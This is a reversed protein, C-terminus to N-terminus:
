VQYKKCLLSVESRMQLTRVSALKQPTMCVYGVMRLMDDVSTEPTILSPSNCHITRSDWLILSGAPATVLQKKPELLNSNPPVLVFDGTTSKPAQKILDNHKKHSRPVVCLGGTARYLIQSNSENKTNTIAVDIKSAVVFPLSM